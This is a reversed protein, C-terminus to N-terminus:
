LEGALIKASAAGDVNGGSLIVAVRRRQQRAREQM